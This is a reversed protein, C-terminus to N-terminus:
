SQKWATVPLQSPRTTQTWPATAQHQISGRALAKERRQLQFPHGRKPVVGHKHSFDACPLALMQSLWRAVTKQQVVGDEVPTPPITTLGLLRPPEVVRVQGYKMDKVRCWLLIASWVVLVVFHPCRTPIRICLSLSREAAGNVVHKSIGVCCFQARDKSHGNRNLINLQVACPVQAPHACREQSCLGFWM